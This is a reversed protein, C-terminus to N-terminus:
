GPPNVCVWKEPAITDHLTFGPDQSALFFTSAPHNM